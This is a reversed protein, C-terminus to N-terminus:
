EESMDVAEFKFEQQTIYRINYSAKKNNTYKKRLKLYMKEAKKKTKAFFVVCIRNPEQKQDSLYNKLQYSYNDRGLLFKTKNDMWAKQVDQIDTIYILSDTFSGSFGFLYVHPEQIKKADAATAISILLALLTLKILKM